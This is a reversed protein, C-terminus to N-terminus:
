EGCGVGDFVYGEPTKEVKLSFSDAILELVRELPLNNYRATLQCHELQNNKLLIHIGYAKGIQDTVASLPTANFWLIRSNGGAPVQDQLGTQRVLTGTQRDYIAQQGPTLLVSQSKSSVLVKGEEVSVIVKGPSGADDINFATGVVKVQLDTVDVIFPRTSDHSVTFFAEGKLRVRRERHNFGAALTLGSHEKLAIVSGDSLTDKIATDITAIVRTGAPTSRQWLFYVAALVLTLVAAIRVFAGARASFFAHPTGTQIRSKVKQLAGETDVERAPAPKAAPSHQWLLQLDDFYRKNKASEAVWAQLAADEEPTSEAALHRAILTDKHEDFNEM